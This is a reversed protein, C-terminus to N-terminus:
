HSPVQSHRALYMNWSLYVSLLLHLLLSPKSKKRTNFRSHASNMGGMYKILMEVLRVERRSLAQPAAVPMILTNARTTNLRVVLPTYGHAWTPGLVM